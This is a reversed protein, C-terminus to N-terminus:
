NGHLPHLPSRENDKSDDARPVLEMPIAPPRFLEKTNVNMIGAAEISGGRHCSMCWLGFENTEANYCGLLVGECGGCTVPAVGHPLDDAFNQMVREQLKDMLGHFLADLEEKKPEDRDKRNRNM